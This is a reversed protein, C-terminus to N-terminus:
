KLTTKAVARFNVLGCSVSEVMHWGFGAIRTEAATLPLAEVGGRDTYEGLLEPSSFYYVENPDLVKQTPERHHDSLITAGYFSGVRGTRLIELRTVPDILNEFERSTSLKTWLSSSFLIASLPLGFDTVQSMGEGIIPPTLENGFHVSEQSNREILADVATKFMRDEGVLIQEEGEEFKRQLIDERSRDVQRKEIYIRGQIDVEPPRVMLDRIIQLEVQTPGTTVVVEVNKDQLYIEPSEGQNLPAFEVLQRMLGQRAVNVNITGALESGIRSREQGTKDAMMAIVTEKRNAVEQERIAAVEAESDTEIDNFNGKEILSAIIKLAEKNSSANIEGKSDFAKTGKYDVDKMLKKAM